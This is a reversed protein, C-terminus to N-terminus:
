VIGKMHVYVIIGLVVVVCLVVFALSLVPHEIDWGTFAIEDERQQWRRFKAKIELLAQKFM